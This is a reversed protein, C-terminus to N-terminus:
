FRFLKHFPQYYLSPQTSSHSSRSPYKLSHSASSVRKLPCALHVSSLSWSHVPGFLYRFYLDQILIRSSSLSLLEATQCCASFWACDMPSDQLAFGPSPGFCVRPSRHPSLRLLSHFAVSLSPSSQTQLCFLALQAHEIATILHPSLRSRTLRVVWLPILVINRSATHSHHWTVPDTTTYPERRHYHAKASKDAWFCQRFYLSSTFYIAIKPYSCRASM